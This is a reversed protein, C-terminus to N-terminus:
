SSKVLVRRNACSVHAAATPPIPPPVTIDLPPLCELTPGYVLILGSSVDHLTTFPDADGGELAVVWNVLCIFSLFTPIRLSAAGSFCPADPHLHLAFTGQIPESSLISCLLVFHQGKVEIVRAQTSTCAELRRSNKTAPTPQPPTSSTHTIPIHYKCGPINPSAPFTPAFETQHHLIFPFRILLSGTRAM